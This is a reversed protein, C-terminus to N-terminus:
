LIGRWAINEIGRLSSLTLTEQIEMRYSQINHGPHTELKAQSCPGVLGFQQRNKQNSRRDIRCTRLWHNVDGELIRCKQVLALLSDHLKRTGTPSGNIARLLGNSLQTGVEGEQSALIFFQYPKKGLHM